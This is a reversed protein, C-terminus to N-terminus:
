YSVYVFEEGYDELLTQYCVRKVKAVEEPKATLGLISLQVINSVMEFIPILGNIVYACYEDNYYITDELSILYTERNLEKSAAKFCDYAMEKILNFRSEISKYEKLDVFAQSLSKSDIWRKEM